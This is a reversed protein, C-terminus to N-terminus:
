LSKRFGFTPGFMNGIDLTQSFQESKSEKGLRSKGKELHHMFHVCMLGVNASWVLVQIM